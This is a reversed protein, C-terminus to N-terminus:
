AALDHRCLGRLKKRCSVAAEMAVHKRTDRVWILSLLLGLLAVVLGAYFIVDVAAFHQALSASGFAALAVAVYGAFENLGMALGRQREGVLDIKM